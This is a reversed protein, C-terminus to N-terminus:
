EVSTVKPAEAQALIITKLSSSLLIRGRTFPINALAPFGRAQLNSPGCEAGTCGAQLYLGQSGAISVEACQLCLHQRALDM